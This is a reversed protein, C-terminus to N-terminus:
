YNWGAPISGGGTFPNELGASDLIKRVFTNSNPGTAKYPPVKYNIAAERVKDCVECGEGVKSFESFITAAKQYDDKTRSGLNIVSVSAIGDKDCDDALLLFCHNAQGGFAGRAVKAKGGNAQWDFPSNGLRLGLPSCVLYVKCTCDAKAIDYWAKGAQVLDMRYFLGQDEPYGNPYEGNEVAQEHETLAIELIEAFDSGTGVVDNRVIPERGLYDFWHNINNYCFGYM